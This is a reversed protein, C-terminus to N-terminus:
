IKGASWNHTWELIIEKRKLTSRLILNQIMSRNIFKRIETYLYWSSKHAGVIRDEM